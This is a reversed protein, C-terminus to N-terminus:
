PDIAITAEPAITECDFPLIVQPRATGTLLLLLGDKRKVRLGNVPTTERLGLTKAVDFVPAM